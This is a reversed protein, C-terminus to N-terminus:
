TSENRGDGSGDILSREHLVCSHPGFNSNKKGRLKNQLSFSIRDEQATPLNKKRRGESCLSSVSGEWLSGLIGLCFLPM